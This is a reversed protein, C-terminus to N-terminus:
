DFSLRYILDVASDVGAQGRLSWRRSLEYFILLTGAAGAVSHEYAAYLRDSLRKGLMVSTSATAGEETRNVSLEDLGFHSALSRGERGGLLALAASQLMASEAGTDPAPRGLLLWALAQSDPLQPESYLRVRPLLASGAVQVGVRQDSTHIPRLAVIDLAPNDAAGTFRIVGHAIELEQSYAHFTGGQTRIVGTVRPATDVPGQAQLQLTGALRTDLGQGRVRLADGLDIQVQAAITLAAAPGPSRRAAAPAALTAPAQAGRARAGGRGHVVVDDGLAPTTEEPLVFLARDVHLRGGVQLAGQAYAAQVQGSVTVERDTRVSAHLRELRADLRAQARGDIWGAAGSARLTGGDSGPGHLTLEDIVLRAGELRARLRGDGLQLGDAVSRLALGDANVSGKLQPAARTGAVQVDAALAGRLRWGPPALTSWASIQPWRARLSGGLPADDPWDWHPGGGADPRARLTSRLRAELQGARASDWSLTAQLEPGDARLALRAERLGAAIPTVIGSGEDTARLRVDGRTRALEARLQLQRGYTLSWRGDLHVDTELGAEALAADAVRTAWALPLGSIRGSSHLEGASWRLPEWTVQAESSPEPSTISLGGAGLELRDGSATVTFPGLGAIQWRGAGLAPDSARAQLQTVEARWGPAAGATAATARGGRAALRLELTREGQALEGSARASAQALTGDLTLDLNRLRLAAATGDTQRLQANPAALRAHLRPDRWGGQWRLALTAQGSAELHALSPAVAPLRAAWAQARRLNTIDIDLQGSGHAAALEGDLRARLGPAALALRAAGSPADPDIRASGSLEADDSRLALEDLRLDGPAWRGRAALARLRLARLDPAIGAAAGDGPAPPASTQLALEFDAATGRGSATAQGGLPLPALRSDLQAPDIREVRAQLQWPSAEARSTPPMWRGSARLTGGAARAELAHVTLTGDEWALDAHMRELPLAGQDWPAPVQNALEAVLKWRDTGTDALPTLTLEGGLQTRPARPWFPSLDLAQLRASAEAVPRDAWPTLRADLRAQPPAGAPPAAGSAPPAARLDAHLLPEALPGRLTAQLALPVPQPAGPVPATWAGDLTGDLAFPASADLTMQGRYRGEQLRAQELELRHRTGDYAYRAHVEHLTAAPPGGWHLEDVRMEALELRLPLALTAPPTAPATSAPREDTIRVRRAALREIRLTRALLAAPQWRLEAQEIDIRLGDADWALARASGGGLVSGTVGEAHLPQWRGVWRLASALSGESAAWLGLAAGGLLALALAAILGRLALRLM